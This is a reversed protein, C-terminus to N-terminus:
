LLFVVSSNGSLTLSNGLVTATGLLAVPKDMKDSVSLTCNSSSVNHIVLLKQSGATMYWSAIGNGVLTTKSMTGSALAEYTNRLRSWTRYVNLISEADADQTEVSIAGDIMTQDIGSPLGKSAVIKADKDWCIPMRIDEDGHKSKDGWYGLEDGQFIFPKGEATLLIAAAQKEKAENRGLESAVRTIDHNGIILSTQAKENFGKHDKIYGMVATAFGSGTGNKLADLVRDRFGFEFLSPLGKYYLKEMEHSDLVEGVMFMDAGDHLPSYTANCRAYWKGLFTPNEDSWQNHYIHKVADLRFGAVGFEKIWKDASAAIAQFAPSQEAQDVPGYNLDPMSQAFNSHYYGTVAINSPDFSSTSRALTLAQGLVVKPRGSVGYKTGSTWSSSSTRVLYGWLSDFDVVLDYSNGGSSKFEKLIGNGFYIYKGSTGTYTNETTETVTIRPSADSIWDLHFHYRGRGGAAYWEGENYANQGETALMPIKGATVDAKPDSSFIYYNRYDSSPNAVAEKFWDHGDGSHNLVYDMYIDIHRERAANVLDRFDEESGYLQNLRTYDNVDYAHYSNTPHAPSLWLATVGLGDLYDLKERIGKFDGVGDEGSDAFTYILIQYTTSARKTGDFAAPLPIIAEPSKQGAMQSVFVERTLSGCQIRLKGARAVSENKDLSVSVVGNGSGSAPSFLMWTDTASVTWSGSASVTVSQASTADAQFSLQQPSVSLTQTEEQIPDECAIAGLAVLMLVFRLIRKM